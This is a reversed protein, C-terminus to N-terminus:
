AEFNKNAGQKDKLSCVGLEERLKLFVERNLPKTLIDAFQEKTGVHELEIMGENVLDRLFHFRVGIHKCRGHFVPNRSLKIASTNDCKIMTIDEQKLGFEELIGRIWLVQCACTSAAVYEAETSSLAVISQKKSCWAVAAGDWLFLYGSTSKRDSVDGAFDSDTYVDMRGIGGRKYWIGYDLTGQLYRLVRKAAAYHAETPRSMFRSIFSVVFQIDPRTTTIYMLSGVLQKFKTEDTLEGDDQGLKNGPVIPNVVANCGLMKFRTLIEAAYKRQSVHIGVNTQVVEIGLFYKMRGLDTMEFEAKMSSKFEELMKEDNGTYLLDDVYINM